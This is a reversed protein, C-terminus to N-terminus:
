KLLWYIRIRVTRRQEGTWPRFLDTYMGDEWQDLSDDNGTTSESLNRKMMKVYLLLFQIIGHTSPPSVACQWLMSHDRTRIHELKDLLLTQRYLLRIMVTVTERTLNWLYRFRAAKGIMKTLIIMKVRGIEDSWRLWQYRSWFLFAHLTITMVSLESHWRRIEEVWFRECLSFTTWLTQMVVLVHIMTIFNETHLSNPYKGTLFGNLYKKHPVESYYLKGLYEYDLEDSITMAFSIIPIRLRKFTQSIIWLRLM